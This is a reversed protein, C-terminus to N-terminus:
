LAEVDKPNALIARCGGLDQMQNLDSSIERLKRRISRMRKMRAATLTDVLQLAKLKRRLEAHATDMYQIHSDRWNYATDFAWLAEKESDKSWVIYGRLMEGARKVESKTHTL